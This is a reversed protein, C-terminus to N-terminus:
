VDLLSWTNVELAHENESRRTIRVNKVTQLLTIGMFVCTSYVNNYFLIKSTTEARPIKYSLM